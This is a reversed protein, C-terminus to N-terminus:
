SGANIGEKPITAMIRNELAIYRPRSVVGAMTLTDTLIQGTLGIAVVVEMVEATFEPGTKDAVCGELISVLHEQASLVHDEFEAATM